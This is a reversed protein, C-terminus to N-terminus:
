EGRLIRIQVFTYPQNSFAMEILRQGPQFFRMSEGGLIGRDLVQQPDCLSLEIVWVLSRAVIAICNPKVGRLRRRVPVKAEIQQSCLLIM